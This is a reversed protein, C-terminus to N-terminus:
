SALAAKVQAALQRYSFGGVNVGEKPCTAQCLGCGKCKAVNVAIHVKAATDWMRELSIADYPCVDVCVACGDCREEDVRAKISDLDIQSRSLVTAARAVAAEAQAISEELPKPYHALGAMYVGDTAFDLPRLKAHAEQFFQDATLPLKYLQALKQVGPSPVIATALVVLDAAITFPHHLVHDWVVVELEDGEIRVNPKEHLEYNIFIVGLDRAEKYLGERRGYTRMDRYLIFVNREPNERKLSIAAQVAHTCCVRSCYPRETERSGVCQIFVFTRGHKVREAGVQHLKDFELATLVRPSQGYGYGDPKFPQGGTALIAVGHKVTSLGTPKRISSQFNGIYGEAHEIEGEMHVTIHPHDKVKEILDHVYPLIPEGKWTEFLHRANGGLESSKEVLHVPFGQDALGLASVMGAVGGGIVLAQREVEVAVPPLPELLGVKAVAMRVLDKAKGTATEPEGSHVWSDQNRINAMEFLYENLGSAKLTERFLPEHTRPSCAAVVVRNLRHEGIKQQIINQTDQACTFLNREVYAVGPLTAAYNTLEEVDVVGAINTGCHCIFVGIRPDLGQIELEPPFQRQKTLTSRSDALPIAAAAAAASAEMVSEPIDKPGSFAGCVYVGAKSTNVPSFSSTLAFNDEDLEVGLRKALETTQHSIEMGVSLVALDFEDKEQKGEDTIYRFYLDGEASGPELSHVRCRHFQIGMSKAREYYREFEKGHTRMDMFFISVDLDKVHEKSIMAEKIAYMCCVASCYGHPSKNYDRSGVCQLFAMKKVEKGDSPRILHGGTPGGASLYRELELSTIVNPFIGYGWTRIGAPDFARFGPALIVAGVNLTLEKPQDQLNVAEAPCLKACAKCKGKGKVFFICNEPDVVYKLPVAQPYKVYIAKRKSLGADYENAVKKPCKETCNGCAICRDMDVFRPHQLVKVSFNGVDGTVSEV